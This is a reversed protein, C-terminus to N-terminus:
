VQKLQGGTVLGDFYRVLRDVVVPNRIIVGAEINRTQAAATFNASTILAATTDIMVAKAHMVGPPSDPSPSFGRPDHWFEPPRNGAWHDSLFQKRFRSSTISLPESPSRRLHTLDVIFRVHFAPDEDHRSALPELHDRANVFVFSAVTVRARAERFLSSVMTATDSVPTGHVPPGSLALSTAADSADIRTRASAMADCFDAITAPPCGNDLLRLLAASFAPAKTHGTLPQIAQPSISFKLPGSRLSAALAGLTSAPLDLFGSLDDKSM